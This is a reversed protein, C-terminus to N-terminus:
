FYLLRFIASTQLHDLLLSAVCPFALNVSNGNSRPLFALLHALFFSFETWVQGCGTYCQHYDPVGRICGTDHCTCRLSNDWHIGGHNTDNDDHSPSRDHHSVQLRLEGAYWGSLRMGGHHCSVPLGTPLGASRTNRRPMPSIEWLLLPRSLQSRGRMADPCQCM